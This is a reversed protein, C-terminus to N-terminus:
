GEHQYPCGGPAGSLRWGPEHPLRFGSNNFFHRMLGAGCHRFCGILGALLWPTKSAPNPTM